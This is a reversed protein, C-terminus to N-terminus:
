RKTLFDIVSEKYIRWRSGIKFGEIEGSHLYGLLSNKGIKLLERCENFTLIDPVKEFM